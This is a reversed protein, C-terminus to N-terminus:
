FVQFKFQRKAFSFRDEKAVWCGVGGGGGDGGQETERKREGEKEGEGRGAGGGGHGRLLGAGLLHGLGVGPGAEGLRGARLRRLLGLRPTVYGPGAAAEVADQGVAAPVDHALERRAPGLWM